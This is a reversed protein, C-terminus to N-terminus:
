ETEARENSATGVDGRPQTFLEDSLRRDFPESNGAHGHGLEPQDRRRHEQPGFLDEEVDILLVFMDLLM